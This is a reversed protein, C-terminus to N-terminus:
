PNKRKRENSVIRKCAPSCFKRYGRQDPTRNSEAVFSTSCLDCVGFPVTVAMIKNFVSKLHEDLHDEYWLLTRLALIEAYSMQIRPM